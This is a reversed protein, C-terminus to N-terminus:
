PMGFTAINMKKWKYQILNRKYETVKIENRSKMQM